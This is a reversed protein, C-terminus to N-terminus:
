GGTKAQLSTAIEMVGVEGFGRGYFNHSLRPFIMGFSGVFSSTIMAERNMSHVNMFNRRHSGVERLLRVLKLLGHSQATLDLLIVICISLEQDFQFSLSCFLKLDNLHGIVPPM